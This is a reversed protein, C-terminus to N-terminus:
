VKSVNITCVYDQVKRDNYAVYKCIKFGRGRECGISYIVLKASLPM